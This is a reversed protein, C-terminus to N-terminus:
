GMEGRPTADIWVCHSFRDSTDVGPHALLVSYLAGGSQPPGGAGPFHNLKSFKKRFEMFKTNVNM